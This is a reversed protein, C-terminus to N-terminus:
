ANGDEPEVRWKPIQGTNLGRDQDGRLIARAFDKGCRPCWSSKLERVESDSGLKDITTRLWLPSVENGPEGNVCGCTYRIYQNELFPKFFASTVLVRGAETAAACKSAYNVPKGAWVPENHDGRVGIKKTLLLGADAGIKLGSDNMEPVNEGFEEKLMQKLSLGFTNLSIAACM